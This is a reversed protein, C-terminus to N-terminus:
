RPWRCATLSSYASSLPARRPREFNVLTLGIDRGESQATNVTVDDPNVPVPVDPGLLTVNATVPVTVSWTDGNVIVSLSM